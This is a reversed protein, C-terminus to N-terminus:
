RGLKAEAPNKLTTERRGLLLYTTMPGKGKVEVNERVEFTYRDGLGARTRETVQIGGPPAHTQMRSATNVTDGWLDYGFKKRGIVGAVVPGSDIGVRLALGNASPLAPLTVQMALALEAAAQAHDARPVPIGAAVLYGDGLTKIKELGEQEVLADFASFIEDLLTVVAEPPLREVAPTFGSLDAFLVSVEESREAIVGESRKLREAITAPLVNLLLRESQEQEAVLLRHARERARVFYQLLLFLTLSVAGLNLAFFSVALADPIDAARGPLVPELGASVALLVIFAVFWPISREAGAFVLAGVPAMLAWLCVASSDVFGGLSWQLLFPLLLMLGVQATRFGEYRKTRVLLVLGTVSVVQYAFPIAASLWLGLAAYTAVWVIALLAIFSAALALAGKRQRDEDSDSALSCASVLRDLPSASPRM